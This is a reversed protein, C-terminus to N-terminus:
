LPLGPKRGLAAYALYFVVMALLSTLPLAALM